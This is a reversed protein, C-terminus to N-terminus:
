KAPATNRSRYLGFAYSLIALLFALSMVYSLIDAQSTVFTDGAAWAVLIWILGSVVPWKWATEGQRFVRVVVAVAGFVLLTGIFLHALVLPNHLTFGWMAKPGGSEPFAVFLNIAMGLIFQIALGNILGFGQHTLTNKM